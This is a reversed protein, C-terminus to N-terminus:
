KTSVYYSSDVATMYLRTLQQVTQEIDYGSDKVKRCAQKRSYLDVGISAIEDVWIKHGMDTPLSKALDTVSTEDPVNTSLLTPLGAAQAEIAAIGLGEYNSPMAFVDSASLIAAIDSRLGLFYVAHMIGLKTAYNELVPREPGDGVVLLKCRVGERRADSIVDILFAQNKVPVLRGVHALVLEDPSIGLTNRIAERRESDFAFKDTDIGNKIISYSSESGFLWIGASESCAFRLINAKALYMSFLKNLIIHEGFSTHSHAIISSKQRSDVAAKVVISVDFAHSGHIHVIDFNHEDFWNRYSKYQGVYRFKGNYSSLEEGIKHVTIGLEALEPEYTGSGPITSLIEFEFCSSEMHRIVNLVFSEIGGESMIGVVHLVKIM